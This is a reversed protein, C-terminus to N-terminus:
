GEDSTSQEAADDVSAPDNVVRAVSAQAIRIDTNEAVEVLLTGGPEIETVTGYIGAVTVIEDGPALRSLISEMEKRRKQQPRIGVFYILAGFVVIYIPLLLGSM